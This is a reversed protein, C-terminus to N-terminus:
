SRCCRRALPATYECPLMRRGPPLWGVVNSFEVPPPRDQSTESNARNPGADPSSPGDDGVHVRRAGSETSGALIKSAIESNRRGRVQEARRRQEVADAAGDLTMGDGDSRRTTEGACRHRRHHDLPQL